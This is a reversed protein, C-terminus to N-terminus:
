FILAFKSANDLLWPLNSNIKRLVISNMIGYPKCFLLLFYWLASSYRLKLVIHIIYITKDNQMIWKWSISSKWKVALVIYKYKCWIVKHFYIFFICKKKSGQTLFHFFISCRTYNKSHRRARFKINWAFFRNDYFYM